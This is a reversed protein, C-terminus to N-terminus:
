KVLGRLADIFKNGAFYSLFGITIAGWGDLVSVKIPFQSDSLRSSVITFAAALIAVGTADRLVKFILFAGERTLVLDRRGTSARSSLASFFQNISGEDSRVAVVIYALLGGIIAFIIIQMQDIGVQFTASQAFSRSPYPCPVTGTPDCVSFKGTLFYDYSGPSFDIARKFPGFMSSECSRLYARQYIRRYNTQDAGLDQQAQQTQGQSPGASQALAAQQQRIKDVAAAEESTYSFTKQSLNFLISVHDQPQLVLLGLLNSNTTPGLPLACLSDTQSLIAHFMLQVASTDIEVPRSSVNQIDAAINSTTGLKLPTESPTLTIKLPIVLLSSDTSTPAQQNDPPKPKADVPSASSEHASATQPSGSKAQAPKGATPSAAQSAKAPKNTSAGQSQANVLRPCLAIMALALACYSKRFQLQNM